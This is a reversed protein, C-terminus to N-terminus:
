TAIVDLQQWMQNNRRSTYRLSTSIPQKRFRGAEGLLLARARDGAEFYGLGDALCPSM